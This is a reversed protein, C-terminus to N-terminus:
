KKKSFPSGSSKKNKKSFPSGSSKRKGPSVKKPTYDYYEDKLQRKLKQKARGIEKLAERENYDTSGEGFQKVWLDYDYRKMDSQNDYGQLREEDAKKKNKITAEARSLDGYIDSLVVKRVDKYFPVFGLHGMIELPLRLYREKQQREIASETKKDPETLKSILLDASAIIPGYAGFMKKSYDFLDSGQGKKGKPVINYQIADRYEDYEGDRLFDLQEKNFEEVAYNIGMKTANGFDRGLLLSTFTSALAQGLQKDFSKGESGGEDEDTEDDDDFFDTLATALVQSILTYTMMRTTVGAVLKAGEVKSLEGRGIMNMVGTRATIYEFILFRTMFNNFQNFARIAMSQNPKSTGKLMGMFANDTAGAMVSRADAWDTAADLAERNAELYAQDDAAIKEFDPSKGTIEKFKNQLSGIWLKRMVLKDPTSILTDATFEVGKVWRQGSQNWAKGLFNEIKSKKARGGKVGTSENIISTDVLKGSLDTTPFIRNIASSDLNKMINPGMESSFVNSLEMGALFAKPDVIMAFSLNSTLEAIFRGGGALIARYGTKKLYVMMEDVVSSQTYADTLLNSTAEEFASDLANYIQVQEDTATGETILKETIRLSRRATRIPETMNYDMLVFKSSKEVSAYIDFNIASVKGTREILSKAKTSPTLSNNYSNVFSEGSMLDNVKGGVTEEQVVNLHVYNNIPSFAQGRIITSTIAAKEQQEINIDQITKISAKEADNFSEYLADIDIQDDVSYKTLIEELMLIDGDGFRTKGKRIVKITEKIFDASQNVFKNDPNSNFELQIMYAMQKYKSMVFKDPDRSFSKMVATQAKEIRNQVAKMEVRYKAIAKASLSFLANFVSRTKFDGLLQDTYFLPNRRVMELIGNSRTVLGKLKSYARSIPLLQAKYIAKAIIGGFDLANLKEVMIQAFNPFYGMNINDSVRLINELDRLNLQSIDKSKILDFFQRAKKNEYQTPLGNREELKLKKIEAIYEAKKEAIEEDSMKAAKESPSIISKYNQMVGLDAEDIVDQKFMEKITASYSVNGEENLIKGEFAAYKDALDLALSEQIDVQKLVLDSMRTVETISPLNLVTKKPSFMDVLSLYTKFVDSPILTPDISFLRTLNPVLEKSIGIKKGVNKKATAMKARAVRVQEAYEVDNMVRGMYNVFTRVSNENLMNVKSFKNLITNMQKSTILGKKELAKIEATLDKSASKTLRIIRTAIKLKEVVSLNEIDGIAGLIRGRSPARRENVGAIARANAEMTKKQSDTAAKYADSDRVYKDIRSVLRKLKEADPKGKSNVRDTMAQVDSMIDNIDQSAKNYDAQLSKAADWEKVYPTKELEPKVDDFTGVREAITNRNGGDYVMAVVDPEGKNFALFVKKVWDDPAYKDNWKVKAVPKFGFDAYYQTLVTDYHDLSVAGEKIANVILQPVRGKGNEYSFVSIIDGDETIALGAKGDPTLFLRSNAYEKVSYVFVSAAYKNSKKSEIIQKHFLEPDNVEYFESDAVVRGPMAELLSSEEKDNLKFKKVISADGVVRDSRGVDYRPEAKSAVAGSKRSGVPKRKTSRTTGKKDQIDDQLNLKNNELESFADAIKEAEINQRELSLKIAKDTFGEARRKEVFNKLGGGIKFRPMVGKSEKKADFSESIQKGKFLDALGTNIFDEISLSAISKKFSAQIKKLSKDYQEQTIEKKKLQKNLEEIDQKAFLKESSVFKKQIYKFTANLWEKFNSKKSAEVINNGKTAMLEVLAEERALKNDGYKEIATKLAATGEVLKLGRNLLQTGKDGSAKSRLYDIWIHGYEHIPTTMSTAEPNIYIKGEKTLGLIVKGKTIKTRVGPQNIAENFEEMTTVVTVKPFSFKLKGLLAKFASMDSSPADGQFALDNPFDGVVQTAVQKESPRKGSKDKKFVRNSKAKWTPFVELGSAPNKILKILRGKPGTGYNPHDIDIVGGDIVDIGVISVVDGKNAAMMSPEGLAKYINDALFITSNNTTGKYLANLFSKNAKKTGEPSTITNFLATRENLTLTNKVDGKARANADAIVADMFSGLSTIEKDSIFKLLRPNQKGKKRKLDAILETMAATQNEISQDKIEPSLYRFVLENSNIAENGMRIIAMPIHGNPLKGEKWLRDFLQKNNKYLKVANDYQTQSASKKVGAWAAKVKSIANFMIGGQAKMPKGTADKGEGGFAIDSIGTIMPIGDFDAMEGVMDAKNKFGLEVADADTFEETSNSVELPNVTSTTQGPPTTFNVEDPDMANMENVIADVDADDSELVADGEEAINFRPDGGEQNLDEALLLTARKNVEEETFNFDTIGEATADEQMETSAEEIYELKEEPSLLEFQENIDVEEVELASADEPTAETIVSEDELPKEQLDKIQKRILAAKEKAIETKNGDVKDLELQLRTMENLTAKNLDPNTDLLEKETSLIVIRDQLKKARGDYDNDITIESAVLQDLTMTEILDDVVEATVKEGNVKYKPTSFRASVLDKIGGPIEALGELAIESIDMEQGIALRATAEGVSGGVGEVAGAGALSKLVQTKTAESAAQKGGKTLIKSGIKGGLKGTFADIAGIILGRSIAKNRIRTYKEKDNLIERLLDATLEQDGAEEQLLESFTAGMELASGAAAFAYPLAAAAGAIAGPGSLIGAGAIAGTGAGVGIAAGGAALADTNSAMATLSSVILEPLITLGSKALGLVVGMFGEGNEEYTKQYEQMEKSAGYKSVNKNAELYSQIDEETSLSGRLLLDSANEAAIGQNHGGAVARAMDDIFDGIGTQTVYDISRLADGFAGTFYDEETLEQEEGLEPLIFDSELGGALSDINETSNPNKKQPFYISNFETNDLDTLNEEALYSHLEPNKKAGTKYSDFFEKESLDTMGIELLYNYLETFKDM